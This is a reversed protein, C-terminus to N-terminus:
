QTAIRLPITFSVTVPKGQQYGPRFPPLLRVARLVASDVTSSVSAVKIRAHQVTETPSVEFYVFTRYCSPEIHSTLRLRSM